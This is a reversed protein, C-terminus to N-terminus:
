RREQGRKLAQCLPSKEFEKAWMQRLNVVSQQHIVRLTRDGPAVTESFSTAIRDEFAVHADRLFEKAQEIEEEKELELNIRYGEHIVKSRPAPAMLIKDWADRSKIKQLIGFYDAM